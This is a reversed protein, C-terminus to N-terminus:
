ISELIHEIMELEDQNVRHGLGEYLRKTVQGNLEEFVSATEKVRQPPIHPDDDSCGLFIPTGDLNGSYGDRDISAGILGGSLAALGGYRRPNRAVYESALCAGQSFGIFLINSYTLEGKLVREVAKEILGLGSSRGPENQEVPVLFSNPYWTQGAAQPALYGVDPQGLERSLELISRATAGRGHVMIAAKTAQELPVGATEIPQSRHPDTENM